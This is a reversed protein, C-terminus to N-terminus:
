ANGRAKLLQKLQKKKASVQLNEKEKLDVLVQSFEVYYKEV